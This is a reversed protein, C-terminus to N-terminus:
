WIVIDSGKQLRFYFLMGDNFIAIALAIEMAIVIVNALAVAVVCCLM